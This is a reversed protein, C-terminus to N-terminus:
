IVNKKDFPIALDLDLNQLYPYNYQNISEYQYSQFQIKFCKIQSNSITRTCIIKDLDNITDFVTINDNNNYNEIEIQKKISFEIKNENKMLVFYALQVKVDCNYACICRVNEILKCSIQEGLNPENIQVEYKEQKDIYYFFINNGKKGYIIIENKGRSYRSYKNHNNNYSNQFEKQKIYGFVSFDTNISKNKNFNQIESNSDLYIKFYEYNAFLFYNNSEDICLFYPPSYVFNDSASSFKLQSTLRDYTYITGNSIINYSTDNAKFIIPYILKSYPNSMPNNLIEAKTNLFFFCLFIIIKISFNLFNAM